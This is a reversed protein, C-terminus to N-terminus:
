IGAAAEIAARKVRCWIRAARPGWPAGHRVERKIRAYARKMVRPVPQWHVQCIWEDFTGDNAKTRGCFPVCCRIRLTTM